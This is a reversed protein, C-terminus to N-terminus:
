FNLAFLHPRRQNLRYLLLEMSRATAVRAPAREYETVEDAALGITYSQRMAEM